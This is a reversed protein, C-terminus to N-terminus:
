DTTLYAFSYDFVRTGTAAATVTISITTANIITLRVPSTIASQSGDVNGYGCTVSVATTKAIPLSLTFTSTGVGGITIRCTGYVTVFNGARGYVHPQIDFLTTNVSNTYTPTYKGSAVQADLQSKIVVHNAATAANATINGNVQLKDTAVTTPSSTAIGINGTSRKIFLPTQFSAGSDDRSSISFDTGLNGTSEANADARIIWRAV